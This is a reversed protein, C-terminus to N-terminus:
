PWPDETASGAGSYAPHSPHSLHAFSKPEIPRYARFQSHMIAADGDERTSQARAACDIRVQLQQWVHTAVGDRCPLAAHTAIAFAELGNASVNATASGLGITQLSIHWPEFM